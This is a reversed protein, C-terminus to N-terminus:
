PRSLSRGAALWARGLALEAETADDKAVLRIRHPRAEETRLKLARLRGDRGVIVEVEEGARRGALASDISGGEIRRGGMGILEDGPDIGGLEAARGRAVTAVTARGGDSRVRMGLTLRPATQGAGDHGRGAETERERIIRLGARGFTRDYDLEGPSRIWADFLDTVVVGTAEEFLAELGAEPVAKGIKGYHEWLWGLVHDLSARGDTRARIEIDLLACVLEGKRYYSVSSNSSNEDPRYLKIWADFSAQELSQVFRGPVEDMAFIEDALHSKYEDVTCLGSISLARWSYYSTAGEFWWLLRTYNEEQYRYPFLGEPRIRKINWVHFLEHAVLSLLDLYADRTAFADPPAVLAASAAHELGGHARPSLHLLLTYRDYPLTGGFWASEADIIRGFDRLFTALQGNDAGDRPWIAVEHLVGKAEMREARFHGLEIPADVLADFDKAFLRVQGTVEAEDEPRRSLRPLATMVQWGPPVILDVIAPLQEYGELAVFLAAGNLLAHSEDVHNTRVTLDNSYTQYHLSVERAGVRGIRWANKRVKVPSSPTGDSLVRFREVHRSYERVLYSGPTWVPMFVVLSGEIPTDSRIRTDVSVLHARVDAISVTHHVTFSM